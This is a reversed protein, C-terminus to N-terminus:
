QITNRTKSENMKRKQVVLREISYLFVDNIKLQGDVRWDNTAM